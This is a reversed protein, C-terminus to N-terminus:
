IQSKFVDLFQNTLLSKDYVDEALKRSNEGMELVIKPNEKLYKYQRSFRGPLNIDDADCIAIIDHMCIEIGRSRAKGHGVNLPFIHHTFTIKKQKFTTEFISIINNLESSIPGDQVLVVQAPLLDQEYISRLASELLFPKDNIYVCVVVSFM